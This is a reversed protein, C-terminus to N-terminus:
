TLEPRWARAITEFEDKYDLTYKNTSAIYAFVKIM